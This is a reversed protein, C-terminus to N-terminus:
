TSVINLELRRLEEETQGVQDIQNKDDRRWFRLCLPSAIPMGNKIMHLLVM